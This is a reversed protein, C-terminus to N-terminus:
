KQNKKQKRAAQAAKREAKTLPKSEAPAAGIEEFGKKLIRMQKVKEVYPGVDQEPASNVGPVLEGFPRGQAELKACLLGRMKELQAKFEPNNALNNMELPDTKLNYLQDPELYHLRRSM